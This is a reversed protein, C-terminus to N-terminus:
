ERAGKAPPTSTPKSALPDDGVILYGVGVGIGVAALTGFVLALVFTRRSSRLQLM